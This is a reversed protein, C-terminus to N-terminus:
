FICVCLKKKKKYKKLKFNLKEQSEETNKECIEAPIFDCRLNKFIFRQKQLNETKKALKAQLLLFFREFNGEEDSRM